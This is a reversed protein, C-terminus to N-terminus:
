MKTFYPNPDNQKEPIETSVLFYRGVACYSIKNKNKPRKRLKKTRNQVKHISLIQIQTKKESSYCLRRFNKKLIQIM